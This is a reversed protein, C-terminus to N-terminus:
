CKGARMGEMENTYYYGFQDTVVKIRQRFYSTVIVNGEKAQESESTLTNFRSNPLGEDACGRDRGREFRFM